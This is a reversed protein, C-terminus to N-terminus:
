LAARDRRLGRTRTGDRGGNVERISSKTTRTVSRKPDWLVHLELKNDKKIVIKAIMREIFDRKQTGTLQNFKAIFETATKELCELGSKKMLDARAHLLIELESNKNTKQGQLKEVEKELWDTFGVRSRQGKDRLQERLDRNEDELDM